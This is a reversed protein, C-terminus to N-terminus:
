YSTMDSDRTIGTGFLNLAQRAVRKDPWIFESVVKNNGRINEIQRKINPKQDKMDGYGDLRKNEPGPSLHTWLIDDNWWRFYIQQQSVKLVTNTDAEQSDHGLPKNARAQGFNTCSMGGTQASCTGDSILIKQDFLQAEVANLTLIVNCFTTQIQAWGFTM